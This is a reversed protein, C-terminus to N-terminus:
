KVLGLQKGAWVASRKMLASSMQLFPAPDKWSFWAGEELGKFSRLWEGITLSGERFYHYTSIIDFDEIIWKRGERPPAVTVPKGTMDQYLARVVDMGDQAVFLRFAQGVRPNIDLVKYKRVRPDWRYGIDLIGRYGITKMFSTTIDYVEQNWKCIGLSSCGVHVPFQRIKHGTFGALCDSQANFYGNFIFISDDGGPIYEQFMLNPQEPDELRKYAEILEERNQVILMKLGTRDMLRNGLIGKLMVPFVANAAYDQVDSVNKPFSTAATPVGHRTALGYMGEKDMLETVLHVSNRPFLFHEQLVDAYEAVFVSLEDSTPILIPKQPFQKGLNVVFDLYEQPREEDLVKVQKTSCYRSAFGPARPDADVGHLAVGLPGLSRMISLAGLKCNLILVPTSYTDNHM